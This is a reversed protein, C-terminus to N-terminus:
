QPAGSPTTSEAATRVYSGRRLDWFSTQAVVADAFKYLEKTSDKGAVISYRKHMKVM